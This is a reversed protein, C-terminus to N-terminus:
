SVGTLEGVRALAAAVCGPQEHWPLHGAEPVVRVEARSLLAATAEGQSVPMPSKEGLVFVAPVEIARLRETLGGAQLESVSGFTGGYAAVSARMFSPLPPAAPPDAYYGPWLLKLSELM